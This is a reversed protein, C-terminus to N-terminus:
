AWHYHVGSYISTETNPKFAVGFTTVVSEINRLACTNRQNHAKLQSDM